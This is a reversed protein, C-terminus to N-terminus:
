TGYKWPPYLTTPILRTSNARISLCFTILSPGVSATKGFMNTGFFFPLKRNHSSVLLIISPVWHSVSRMEFICSTIYKWSPDVKKKVTSALLQHKYNSFSSSSFFFIISIGHRGINIWLFTTPFLFADFENRCGNPTTKAGIYQWFFKIYKSLKTIYESVGSSCLVIVFHECQQLFCIRWWFELLKIEERVVVRCM